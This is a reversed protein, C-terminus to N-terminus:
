GKDFAGKSGPPCGLVLPFCGAGEVDVAVGAPALSHQVVVVAAAQAPPRPHLAVYSRSRRGRRRRPRATAASMGRPVAWM